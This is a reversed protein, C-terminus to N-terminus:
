VSTRELALLRLEVAVLADLPRPEQPTAAPPPEQGTAASEALARAAVPSATTVRELTDALTGIRDIMRAALAQDANLTRGEGYGYRVTDPTVGRGKAVDGVFRAYSSDVLDRVHAQAEPTLPGGDAGEGKYKGAAFISRKVGLKGLAESIDDYMAYVGISGILASPSAVIESAGAMGWYAASALMYQAQAIVTVKTRAKMIARAFETAGAVNGGPSDVDFVITKVDPQALAEHLQATLGEFTVGGSIDSFLNMRPAIVGHIPIMAVSSNPPAIMQVRQQRAVLATQIEDAHVEEGVLRRALIGAIIPRMAPTVAWPHELAFSLVHEYKLGDRRM